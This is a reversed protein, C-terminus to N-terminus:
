CFKSHRTVEVVGWVAVLAVEVVGVAGARVARHLLVCIGVAAAAAAAAAAARAALLLGGQGAEAQGKGARGRGERGGARGLGPQVPVPHDVVDEHVLDALHGALM